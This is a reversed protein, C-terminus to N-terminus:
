AVSYGPDAALVAEVVRDFDVPDDSHIKLAGDLTLEVDTVGQIAGVEKKVAAVCHDCTMGSVTHTSIM